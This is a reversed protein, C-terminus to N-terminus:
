IPAAIDPRPKERVATRPGVFFMTVEKPPSQYTFEHVIDDPHDEIDRLKLKTRSGASSVYFYEDSGYGTERDVSTHAEGSKDIAILLKGNEM